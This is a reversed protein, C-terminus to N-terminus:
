WTLRLVAQRMKFLEDARVFSVGIASRAAVIIQFAKKDGIGAPELERATAMALSEVTHFGLERLKVMTAAGVGPLDEMFEYKKKPLEADKEEEEVSEVAENETEELM